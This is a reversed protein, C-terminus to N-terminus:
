LNVDFPCTLFCRISTLHRPLVNWIRSSGPQILIHHKFPGTADVAPLYPGPTAKLLLLHAAAMASAQSLLAFYAAPQQSHRPLQYLYSHVGWGSGNQVAGPLGQDGDFVCKHMPGCTLPDLVPRRHQTCPVLATHMHASTKFQHMVTIWVAHICVHKPV